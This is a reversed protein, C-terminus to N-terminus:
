EPWVIGEKPALIVVMVFSSDNNLVLAIIMSDKEKDMGNKGFGDYHLLPIYFQSFYIQFIYFLSFLNLSNTLTERSEISKDVEV